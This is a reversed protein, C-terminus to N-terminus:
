AYQHRQYFENQNAKLLKSDEPHEYIQRHAEALGPVAGNMRDVYTGCHLHDFRANEEDTFAEGGVAQYLGACTDQFLPPKGIGQPVYCQRILEVKPTFPFRGPHWKRIWACIDRRLVPANMYLLCTHLREAKLTKSWPEVFPPEYRGKLVTDDNALGEVSSHFVMDTDCIWFPVPSKQLLADIWVDHSTRHLSVFECGTKSCASKVAAAEAPGLANGFVSVAATPFGVRLTRFVLLTANLNGLCTALIHVKIPM